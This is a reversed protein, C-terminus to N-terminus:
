EDDESQFRCDLDFKQKGNKTASPGILTVQNFVPTGDVHKLAIVKDKFNYILSANDAEGSIRLGADNISEDERKFNWSNLEIGQPISDSIAKMIELAGHAHDSYKCILNVKDRMNSVAKYRDSHLRSLSKQYDVLYDYVFPGGLMVGMILAWLAGFFVLYGRMKAKFRTEELVERWSEPLANLTGEEASREKVGKLAADEDALSIEEVPAFFKIAELDVEAEGMVAASSVVYLKEVKLDGGFAEAEVLSLMIERRFDSSPLVARFASPQDDDLVLITVVDVSRILVIRRGSGQIMPWLSRLTGLTLSDIRTVNLKAADLAEAIDDAASEPLAAALVVLGRETERVVEMSISLEEDPFPSLTELEGRVYELANDLNENPIRVMKVLLRNLPLALVVEKGSFRDGNLLRLNGGEFAAVKIENAM